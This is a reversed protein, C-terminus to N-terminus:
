AAKRQPTLREPEARRPERPPTSVATAAACSALLDRMSVPPVPSLPAAARPPTEDRETASM